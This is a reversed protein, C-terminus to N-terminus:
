AANCQVQHQQEYVMPALMGLSSHRRRRNYIAEIWHVIALRAQHRTQWSRTYILEGKLTAFFSEALANDFCDAVRGMSQRVGAFHALDKYIGAGYQAGRDSHFVVGSVQRRRNAMAMRLADSVLEARMHPAIAWGIVRRSFVDIVTALYLFGEGTHVYTLDGCWLENPRAAKFRRKVLDGFPAPKKAAITTRIRRRGRVGVIGSAAMLRAIRGRSAKVGQDQLEACIRPSGYKGDSESHAKRIKRLLVLNAAARDSVPSAKWRYYAARSVELVRCLLSVAHRQKEAEVFRYRSM